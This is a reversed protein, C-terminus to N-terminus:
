NSLTISGEFPEFRLSENATLKIYEGVKFHPVQSTEVYIIIGDIDSSFLGIILHEKDYTRSSKLCPYEVPEATYTIKSKM